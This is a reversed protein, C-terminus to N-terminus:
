EEKISLKDIKEILSQQAKHFKCGWYCYDYRRQEGKVRDAKEACEDWVCGSRCPNEEILERLARFETANLSLSINIEKGM